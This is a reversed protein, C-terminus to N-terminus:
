CDMRRMVWHVVTSRSFNVATTIRLEQTCKKETGRIRPQCPWSIVQVVKYLTTYGSVPIGGNSNEGSIDKSNGSGTNRLM